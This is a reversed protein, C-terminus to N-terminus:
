DGGSGFYGMALLFIMLGFFVVPTSMVMLVVLWWRTRRRGRREVAAYELVKEGSM